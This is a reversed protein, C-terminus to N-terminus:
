AVSGHEVAVPYRRSLEQVQCLFVQGETAVAAGGRVSPTSSSSGAIRSPLWVGPEVARSLRQFGIRPTGRFFGLSQEPLPRLPKGSGPLRGPRRGNWQVGTKEVPPSCYPTSTRYTRSTNGSPSMVGTGPSGRREKGSDDVKSAADEGDQIEM